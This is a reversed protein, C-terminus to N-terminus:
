PDSDKSHPGVPLAAAPDGGFEGLQQLEEGAPDGAVGGAQGRGQECEDTVGGVAQVGEAGVQVAEGEEKAAAVSLVEEALGSLEASGAV